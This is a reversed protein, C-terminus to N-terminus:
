CLSCFKYYYPTPLIYKMFRGWEGREFEKEIRVKAGVYGERAEVVEM